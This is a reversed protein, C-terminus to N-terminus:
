LEEVELSFDDLRDMENDGWEALGELRAEEAADIEDPTLGLEDRSLNPAYRDFLILNVANVYKHNM